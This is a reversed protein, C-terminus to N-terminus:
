GKGEDLDEWNLMRFLGVIKGQSEMENLNENDREDSSKYYNRLQDGM